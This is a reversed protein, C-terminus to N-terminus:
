PRIFRAGIGSRGGDEVPTTPRVARGGARAREARDLLRVFAGQLAVAMSLDRGRDDRASASIVAVLEPGDETMRMVPAGSSGQVVECSLLRVAGQGELILCGEEISAVAERDAGYSVVTVESRLGANRGTPIPAIRTPRIPLDLQLLALDNGIGELDPQPRPVYAAPVHSETIRRLTEPRGNRLGAQFTLATDAIRERTRPDFLCHAATLVLRDSILTATCFSVGTDLRGIGTWPQAADASALPRLGGLANARQESPLDQAFAPATLLAALLSFAIQRM